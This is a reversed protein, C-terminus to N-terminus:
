IIFAIDRGNDKHSEFAVVVLEMVKLLLTAYFCRFLASDLLASPFLWPVRRHSFPM